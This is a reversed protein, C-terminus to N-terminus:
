DSPLFRAYIMKSIRNYNVSLSPIHVYGKQMLWRSVIGLPHFDFEVRGCCVVAPGLAVEQLVWVRKFWDRDLIWALANWPSPTEYDYLEPLAPFDRGKIAAVWKPSLFAEHKVNFFVELGVRSSPKKLELSCENAAEKIITLAEAAQGNHDEGIWVAVRRTSSYIEKMLLVQHPREQLDEQNICLTDIWIM